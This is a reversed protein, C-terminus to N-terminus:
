AACDTNKDRKCSHTNSDNTKGKKWKKWCIFAATVCVLIGIGYPVLLYFALNPGGSYGAYKVGWELSCYDYAIRACMIESLLIAIITFAIALKKM